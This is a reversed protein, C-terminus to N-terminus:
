TDRFHLSCAPLPLHSFPLQDLLMHTLLVLCFLGKYIDGPLVLGHACSVLSALLGSDFPGSGACMWMPGIGLRQVYNHEKVGLRDLCSSVLVWAHDASVGLTGKGQCYSRHGSTLAALGSVPGLM